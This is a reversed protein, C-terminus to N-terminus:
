IQSFLVWAAAGVYDQLQM